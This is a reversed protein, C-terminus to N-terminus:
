LEVVNAIEQNLGCLFRTMTAEKDEDINARILTIEMEKHYNEVIRIGQKLSQLKLHLDRYYHSPVFRRRM